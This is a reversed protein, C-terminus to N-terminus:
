RNPPQGVFTGRGQITFALGRERLLGIARRVTGRALGHEQELHSESPLRQRDAIKGAKIDAALQHYRPIPNLPDVM